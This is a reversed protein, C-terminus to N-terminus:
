VKSYLEKVYNLRRSILNVICDKRKRSIDLSFNSVIEEIEDRGFDLNISPLKNVMKLQYLHNHAFPKCISYRDIDVTSMTILEEETLDSLLSNGNDFLPAFRKIELSDEDCIFGFNNTHRDVNNIIFDFIIMRNVDEMYESYDRKLVFYLNDADEMKYMSQFVESPGLFNKTYSILVDQAKYDLSDKLSADFYLTNIVDIGLLKGVESAIWESIPQLDSFKGYSLKGTKLYYLDQGIIALWKCLVGKSTNSLSIDSIEEISLEDMTSAAFLHSSKFVNNM